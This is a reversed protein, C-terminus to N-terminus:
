VPAREDRLQREADVWNEHDRGEPRGRAVWLDYARAAIEEFTPAALLAAPAATTTSAAIASGGARARAAKAPARRTTSEDRDQGRPKNQAVTPPQAPGPHSQSAAQEAPSDSQGPRGKGFFREIIM